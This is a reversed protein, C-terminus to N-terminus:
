EGVGYIQNESSDQNGQAARSTGCQRAPDQKDRMAGIYGPPFCEMNDWDPQSDCNVFECGRETCTTNFECVNANSVCQMTGSTTNFSPPMLRAANSPTSMSCNGAAIFLLQPTTWNAFLTNMASYYNKQSQGENLNVISYTTNTTNDYWFASCVGSPEYAACQIPSYFDYGWHHFAQPDTKPSVTIAVNNAQISLAAVYAFLGQWLVIRDIVSPAVGNSDFTSNQGTGIFAGLSTVIKFSDFDGEVTKFLQELMVAFSSAITNLQTTDNLALVSGNGPSTLMQTLNTSGTLDMSALQVPNPNSNGPMPLTSMGTFMAMMLNIVPVVPLDDPSGFLSAIEPIINSSGLSTAANDYGLPGEDVANYVAGVWEYIGVISAMVYMEESSMHSTTLFSQNMSLENFFSTGFGQEPLPNNIGLVTAIFCQSFPLPTTSNTALQTTANQVTPGQRSQNPNACFTGPTDSGNGKWWTDLYTPIDLSTWCAPTLPALTSCNPGTSARRRLRGEHYACTAPDFFYPVVALIWFGRFTWM